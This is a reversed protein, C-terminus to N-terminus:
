VLPASTASHKSRVSRASPWRCARRRSARATAACRRRGSSRPRCRRPARLSSPPRTKRAPSRATPANSRRAAARPRQQSRWPTAASRRGPAARAPARAQAHGLALPLTCTLITSRPPAASCAPKAALSSHIPTSSGPALRRAAAPSAGPWAPRGPATGPRRRRICARQDRAVPPQQAQRQRQRPRSSVPRRTAAPRPGRWAQSAGCQAGSQGAAM